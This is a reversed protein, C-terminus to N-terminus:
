DGFDHYKIARGLSIADNYHEIAETFFKIAESYNGRIKELCGKNARYIFGNVYSCYDTRMDNHGTSQRKCADYFAIRRESEFEKRKIEIEKYMREAIEQNEIKQSEEHSRREAKWRKGSWEDRTCMIDAYLLFMNMLLGFVLLISVAIKEKKYKKQMLLVKGNIVLSGVVFFPIICIVSLPFWPLNGKEAIAIWLWCHAVSCTLLYALGHYMRGRFFEHMGCWGLFTGIVLYLFNVRHRIDGIVAKADDYGADASAKLWCLAEKPDMDVGDGFAYAKGLWYMAEADGANANKRLEEIDIM